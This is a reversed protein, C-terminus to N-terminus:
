QKLLNHHFMKEQNEIKFQNNDMARFFPYYILAMVVLNVVVLIVSKIDLTMIFAGVGPPLFGTPEAVPKGVLGTSMSFYTISTIILPGFVFPIFMFPNLLMPTGFILPENIGFLSPILSVKGVSKYTESKAKLMMLNLGLTLGSGTVSLIAFYFGFTFIHNVEQGAAYAAVNAAGYQIAFPAWVASTISPGHLGFFWFLQTIFIIILMAPLSDMSTVAPALMNMLAEPFISGTFYFTVRSLIVAVVSTIFIPILSSFSEGVMEPVSDPLKIYLNKNVCFRYLEITLISSIIATFLGKSGLYSIDLKGDKIVSTLILHTIISAIAVQNSKIKYSIALNNAIFYTAYLSLLGTTFDVGYTLIAINKSIFDYFVGSGLLNMIAMPLLFISGVIIIPTIAIMGNKIAQIHKQNEIKEAVPMIKNSVINTVSYKNSM